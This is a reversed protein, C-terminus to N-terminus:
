PARAVVKNMALELANWLPELRLEVVVDDTYIMCEGSELQLEEDYKIEITTFRTLLEKAIKEKAQGAGELIDLDGKSVFITYNKHDNIAKLTNRIIYFITEAEPLKAGVIRKAASISLKALTAHSNRLFANFKEEQAAIKEAMQALGESFGAEKAQARLIECEERTKELLQDRDEAAKVVVEQATLLQTFSEGAIM